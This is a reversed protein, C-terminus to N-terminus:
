NLQYVRRIQEKMIGMKYMVRIARKYFLASVESRLKIIRFNMTDPSGIINTGKEVSKKVIREIFRKRKVLNRQKVVPKCLTESELIQQYSITDLFENVTDLRPDGPNPHILMVNAGMGLCPLACHIKTTIVLSAKCYQELLHNMYKEVAANYDQLSGSTVPPNHSISKLPKNLLKELKEKVNAPIPHDVNDVLLIDGNNVHEIPARQQCTITLCGSYYAPIGWGLFLKLTKTDRCGIPAHKRFHARVRESVLLQSNAVHVSVYVPTINDPPPFNDFSHMYWGNAILLGQEEKEIDGLAERDVVSSSAPLFPKAVMGQLVDGINNRLLGEIQYYHKM